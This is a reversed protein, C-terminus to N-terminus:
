HNKKVAFLVSIWGFILLLGGLPTIPGLFSFDVDTIEQLALLYISFSFLLIGSTILKITNSIRQNFKDINLIIILLFLAHFIQYKVGTQFSSIKETSIYDPLTHSALAGFIIGTAGFFIAIKIFKDSKM